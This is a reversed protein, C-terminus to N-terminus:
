VFVDYTIIYFVFLDRKIQKRSVTLPDYDFFLLFAIAAPILCSVGAYGYFMAIYFLNFTGLLFLSGILFLKRKKNLFRENGSIYVIKWFIGVLIGWVPILCLVYNLLVYKTFTYGFIKLPVVLFLPIFANYDDYLITHYVHKITGGPHLFLNQMTSYSITWYGGFDWYYIFQNQQIIYTCFLFGLFVFLFFILKSTKKEFPSICTGM